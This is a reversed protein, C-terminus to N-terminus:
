LSAITSGHIRTSYEIGTSAPLQLSVIFVMDESIRAMLDRELEIGAWQGWPVFELTLVHRGLEAIPSQSTFVGAHAKSAKCVKM